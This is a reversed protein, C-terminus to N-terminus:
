KPGSRRKEIGVGKSVYVKREKIMRHLDDMTMGLSESLKMLCEISPNTEGSFVRSIHSISYGARYSLRTVNITISDPLAEIPNDTITISFQEATGSM